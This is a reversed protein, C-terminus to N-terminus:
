LNLISSIGMLLYFNTQQHAKLVELQSNIAKNNNFQNQMFTITIMRLTLM